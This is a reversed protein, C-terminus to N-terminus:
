IKKKKVDLNGTWVSGVPYFIQNQENKYTPVNYLTLPDAEDYLEKKWTGKYEKLKNKPNFHICSNIKNPNSADDGMQNYICYTTDWVNKKMKTDYVKKYNNTKIIFLKPEDPRPMKLNNTKIMQKLTTTHNDGVWNYIDYKSIDNLPNKKDKDDDDDKIDDFKLYKDQLYRIGVKENIYKNPNYKILIDIWEEITKELYKILKDETPKKNHTQTIINNYKESTCIKNIIDIFEENKIGEKYDGDINKNFYNNLHDKIRVYCVKRGCKTDCLGKKGKKGRPGKMGRDGVMTVKDKTQFFSFTALIINCLTTIAIIYLAINLIKKYPEEKQKLIIKVLNFLIIGFIFICILIGVIFYM